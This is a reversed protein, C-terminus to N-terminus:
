QSEADAELWARVKETELLDDLLATAPCDSLSSVDSKQGELISEATQTLCQHDV